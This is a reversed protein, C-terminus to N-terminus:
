LIPRPTHIFLGPVENNFYEKISYVKPGKILNLNKFILTVFENCSFLDSDNHGICKLKTSSYRQGNISTFFITFSNRLKDVDAKRLEVSCHYVRVSKRISLKELISELECLKIGAYRKKKYDTFKKNNSSEWIYVVNKSEKPLIVLDKTLIIGMHYLKKKKFFVLDLSNM